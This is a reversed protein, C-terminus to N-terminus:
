LSLALSAGPAILGGLRWSAPGALVPALRSVGGPAGQCRFLTVAVQLNELTAYRTVGSM